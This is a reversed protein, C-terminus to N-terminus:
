AFREPQFSTTAMFNRILANAMMRKAAGTKQKRTNLRGPSMTSETMARAAEGNM